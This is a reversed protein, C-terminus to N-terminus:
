AIALDSISPVVPTLAAKVIKSADDHSKGIAQLFKVALDENIEKAFVIRNLEPTSGLSKQMGKATRKVRRTGTKTAPDFNTIDLAQGDELNHLKVKLDKMNAPEKPTSPEPIFDKGNSIVKNAKLIAGKYIISGMSPLAQKSKGSKPTQAIEADIEDQRSAYNHITYATSMFRAISDEDANLLHLYETVVKFNGCLRHSPMYIFGNDKTMNNVYNSLRASGLKFEGDESKTVNLYYHGNAANEIKSKLAEFNTVAM